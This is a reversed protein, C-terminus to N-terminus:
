YIELIKLENNEQQKEVKLKNYRVNLTKQEPKDYQTPMKLVNSDRMTLEKPVKMAYKFDEIQEIQM